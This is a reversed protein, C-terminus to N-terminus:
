RGNVELVSDNCNYNLSIYTEFDNRSDQLITDTEIQKIITTGHMSNMLRKIVVQAPSKDNEKQRKLNLRLGYLNKIVGNNKTKNRGSNFHYGDIIEFEAEHFTIM